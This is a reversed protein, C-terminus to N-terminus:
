FNHQNSLTNIKLKEITKMLESIKQDKEQISKEFKKDQSLIQQRLELSEELTLLVKKDILNKQEIKWINFKLSLWYAGNSILPTITLLFASSILPFTIINHISSYNNLIFDIKNDQIKNESIFFTLYIIKWNWIMWSIMLTGYLPSTTREYIINNFSKKLDEIM